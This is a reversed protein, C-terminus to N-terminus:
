KIIIGRIGRATGCKKKMEETLAKEKSKDDLILVPDMGRIPLGTIHAIIEVTIPIPQGVKYGRQTHSSITTQRMNEHVLRQWFTTAAVFRLNKNQRTWISL